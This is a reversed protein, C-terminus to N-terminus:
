CCQRTRTRRERVCVSQFLCICARGRGQKTALVGQMSRPGDRLSVAHTSQSLFPPVSVQFLTADCVAEVPLKVHVLAGMTALYAGTDDMICHVVVTVEAYQSVSPVV